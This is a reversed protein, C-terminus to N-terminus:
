SLDVTPIVAGAPLKPCTIRAINREPDEFVLQWHGYYTPFPGQIVRCGMSKVLAAAKDVLAPDTVVFSLMSSVPVDDGELKQRASLGLLDYAKWGNFGIQVGDRELVRYIPSSIEPIDRWGCITRYFRMMRDVDRCFINFLPTYEM